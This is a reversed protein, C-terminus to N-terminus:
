RRAARIADRCLRVVTPLTSPRAAIRLLDRPDLHAHRRAIRGDRLVLEDYTRLRVERGRLTGALDLQLRVGTTTRTWSRVTGHLDPMLEFLPDFLGIFGDWGHRAPFPPQELVIEPDVLPQFHDLFAARSGTNWGRAFSEIFREADENSPAAVGRLVPASRTAALFRSATVPYTALLRLRAVPDDSPRVNLFSHLLHQSVRGDPGFRWAELGYADSGAMTGYWSNTIWEGDAALLRKSLAFGGRRMLELYTSWAARIAERGRHVERAGDTISELVADDTYTAVIGDLDRTNTLREAAAVFAKPDSPTRRVAPREKNVQKSSTM